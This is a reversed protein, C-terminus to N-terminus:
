TCEASSMPIWRSRQEDLPHEAEVIEGQYGIPGYRAVLLNAVMAPTAARDGAEAWLAMQGAPLEGWEMLAIELREMAAPWVYAALRNELTARLRATQCVPEVWVVELRRTEGNVFHLALRMRQCGELQAARSEIQPTLLALLEMVVPRLQEVPPDLEVWSPHSAAQVTNRVPRDDRGQAWRQATQGAEGFQQWVAAAPLAGFEGLTRIGLWGLRRRAAVPLPLLDVPLPALFRREEEKPVLRMHGPASCQAAVRATFKGSDWGLAPQLEEGLARRVNRGLEAALGQIEAREQTVTHLDVYALGWGLAEVPLEWGACVALLAEQEAQCGDADLPQFAIEPCRMQAQRPAMGVQVGARRAAPSVACVQEEPGLLALPRQALAPQRRLMITLAFNPIRCCLVSM